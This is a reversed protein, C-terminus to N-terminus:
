AAKRQPAPARSFDAPAERQERQSERRQEYPNNGWWGGFPNSPQQQQPIARPPRRDWGGWGGGWFQADSPVTLALMVCVAAIGEAALRAFAPIRRRPSDQMHM